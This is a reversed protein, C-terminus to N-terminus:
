VSERAPIWATREGSAVSNGGSSSDSYRIEALVHRKVLKLLIEDLKVPMNQRHKEFYAVLDETDAKAEKEAREKDRCIELIARYVVRDPPDLKAIVRGLTKLASLIESGEPRWERAFTLDLGCTLIRWVTGEFNIKGNAFAFAEGRSGVEGTSSDIAQLQEALKFDFELVQESRRLENDAWRSNQLLRRRITSLYGHDMLMRIKGGALPLDVYRKEAVPWRVPVSLWKPLRLAAAGIDGSYTDKASVTAAKYQILGAGYENQAQSAGRFCHDKLLKDLFQDRDLQDYRSDSWLLALMGAAYATSVSTGCCPAGSGKGVDETVVNATTKDGGPAMLQHNHVKTQYNSFSSRDSNSNVGGVPVASAYGAPYNISTSSSENGTSAVYVPKRGGSLYPAQTVGDLLKELAVSRTPGTAGCVGCVLFKEFGLSLSIVAARCDFAAVGVGALVNWLAPSGQDMVRVIYIEAEPAVAAVLTAMATGHGDNDTMHALGAHIPNAIELDYFDAVNITTSSELGSDVIAVGIGRAKIGDRHGDDVKMQRLYDAHKGGLSFPLGLPPASLMLTENREAADIKGAGDREGDHFRLIRNTAGHEDGDRVLVRHFTHPLEGLRASGELESLRDSLSQQYECGLDEVGRQKLHEVAIMGRPSTPITLVLDAM